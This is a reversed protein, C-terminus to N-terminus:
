CIVDILLPPHALLVSELRNRHSKKKGAETEPIGGGGGRPDPQRVQQASPGGEPTGAAQSTATDLGLAARVQAMHVYYIIFIWTRVCYKYKM